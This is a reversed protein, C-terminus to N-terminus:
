LGLRGRGRLAAIAGDLGKRDIEFMPILQAIAEASTGAWRDKPMPNLWAVYRVQHKLGALFKQTEEIRAPNAGGRAAGADSFILVVSRNRSVQGSWQELPIAQQHKADHYLYDIPCNHFYYIGAEGLKGGRVATNVLRDSLSHFAVMSGDQDILLSLETQNRRPPVLVPNLLLGNQAIHRVTLEVDLETAIGERVFQRLYRWSQKMQRQTVPLYDHTLIHNYNFGISPYLAEVQQAAQAIKAENKITHVAPLITEHDIKKSQKSRTKSTLLRAFLVGGAGISVSAVLSATILWPLQNRLTLKMRKQDNKLWQRIKLSQEPTMKGAKSKSQTPSPAIAPSVKTTQLKTLLETPIYRPRVLFVIVFVSGTLLLVGLLFLPYGLIRFISRAVESDMLTKLRSKKTDKVIANNLIRQISEEDTIAPKPISFSQAFCYDFVRGEDVSRVWLTRCLRELAARDGVGYGGQLAVVVAEYDGLGLPLGAERLRTFLEQLPLLESMVEFVAFPGGL